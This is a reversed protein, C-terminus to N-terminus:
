GETHAVSQRVEQFHMTKYLVAICPNHCKERSFAGCKVSIRCTQSFAGRYTNGHERVFGSAFQFTRCSKKDFCSACIKCITANKKVYVTGRGKGKEWVEEKERGGERGGEKRRRRGGEREGEGGGERGGEKGGEKGGERRGEREGERGREKGEERRGERGGEKRGRRGGERGGSESSRDYRHLRGVM